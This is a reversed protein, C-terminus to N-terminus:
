ATIIGMAIEKYEACPLDHRTTALIYVIMCAGGRAVVPSCSEFLRLVRVIEPPACGAIGAKLVAIVNFSHYFTIFSGRVDAVNRGVRLSMLQLAARSGSRSWAHGSITSICIGCM